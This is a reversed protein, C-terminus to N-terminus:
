RKGLRIKKTRLASHKSRPETSFYVGLIQRSYSDVITIPYPREIAGPKDDIVLFDHPTHDIEIRNQM